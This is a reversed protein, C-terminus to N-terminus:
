HRLFHFDEHTITKGKIDQSWYNMMYTNRRDFIIKWTFVIELANHLPMSQWIRSASNHVM